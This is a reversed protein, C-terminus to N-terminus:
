SLTWWANLVGTRLNHTLEEPTYELGLMFLLVLVGIEAGTHIFEQSFDLPALGGKGFAVGALLYLSRLFVEGIQL